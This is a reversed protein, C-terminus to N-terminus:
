RAVAGIVEQWWSHEADSGGRHMRRRAYRQIDDPAGVALTPGTVAFRGDALAVLAGRQDRRTRIHEVVPVGNVAEPRAPDGMDPEWRRTSFIVQRGHVTPRARVIEEWPGERWRTLLERFEPAVEQLVLVHMADGAEIRTSGRPPLVQEDRVIVN